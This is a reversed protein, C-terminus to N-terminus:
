GCTVGSSRRKEVFCAVDAVQVVALVSGRGLPSVMITLFGMNMILRACDSVAGM